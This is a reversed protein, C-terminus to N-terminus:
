ELDVEIGGVAAAAVNYLWVMLLTMLFGVGGYVIPLAIVVGVGVTAGLGAAAATNGALGGAMAVLSLICGFVLGLTAYLLGAIKACSLPGVHRIIM